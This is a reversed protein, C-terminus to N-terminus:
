ANGGNIVLVGGYATNARGGDMLVVRALDAPDGQLFLDVNNSPVASALYARLQFGMKSRTQGSSAIAVLLMLIFPVTRSRM